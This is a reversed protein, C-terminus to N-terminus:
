VIMKILTGKPKGTTGSTYIGYVISTSDFKSKLKETENYINLLDDSIRICKLKEHLYTSKTKSGVLLIDIQSDQIIYENRKAPHNPAIPIYAAGCKLIAFIGIIMELNRETCIGVM